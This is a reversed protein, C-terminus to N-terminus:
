RDPDFALICVLIAILSAPRLWYFLSAINFRGLDFFPSFITFVDISANLLYSLAVLAVFRFSKTLFFTINFLFMLILGVLARASVLAAYDDHLKQTVAAKFILDPYFSATLIYSIVYLNVFFFGAQFMRSQRWISRISLDAWDFSALITDIEEKSLKNRDKM